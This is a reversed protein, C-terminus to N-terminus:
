RKNGVIAIIPNKICRTKVENYWYDVIQEFTNSTYEKGMDSILKEATGANLEM